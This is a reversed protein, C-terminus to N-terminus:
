RGQRMLQIDRVLQHHWPSVGQYQGRRHAQRAIADARLALRLWVQRATERDRYSAPMARYCSAAYHAMECAARIPDADRSVRLSVSAGAVYASFEDFLHLPDNEHGILMTGPGMPQPQLPYRSLELYQRFRPGRYRVFRQVSGLTMGRPKTPIWLFRGAQLYYGGGGYQSRLKSNAWHVCEHTTTVPDGDDAHYYAPAQTLRIQSQYEQAQAPTAIAILMATTLATM